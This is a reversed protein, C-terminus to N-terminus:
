TPTSTRPTSQSAAHPTRRDHRQQSPRDKTGTAAPGAAPQRKSAFAKSIRDVDAQRQSMDDMFRRHDELLREACVWGAGRDPVRHLSEFHNHFPHM